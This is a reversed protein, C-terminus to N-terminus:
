WGQIPLLSLKKLMNNSNQNHNETYQAAAIEVVILNLLTPASHM